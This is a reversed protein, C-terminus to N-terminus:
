RLTLNTIKRLYPSLRARQIKNTKQLFQEVLQYKQASSHLLKNPLLKPLNRIRVPLM